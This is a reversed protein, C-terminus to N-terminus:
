KIDGLENKDKSTLVVLKEIGMMELINQGIRQNSMDNFVAVINEKNQKIKNNALLVRYKPKSEYFIYLDKTLSPNVAQLSELSDKSVLAFDSMHFSVSMLADIEKPVILIPLNNTEKKILENLLEKTYSVDYASTVLGKLQSDKKGVLIKKDTITGKKQAVLLADLNHKKILNKYHWSSVILISDNNKLEQEFTKKDSFPQFKYKGYASLYSDFSIKLSAFNKINIDTSYFYIKIENAM